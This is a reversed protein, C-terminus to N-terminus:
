ASSLKTKHIAYPSSNCHPWIDGNAVEVKDRDEDRKEEMVVTMLMEPSFLDARYPHTLRPFSSDLSISDDSMLGHHSRRATKLEDELDSMLDKIDRVLTSKVGFLCLLFVLGACIGSVFYLAM